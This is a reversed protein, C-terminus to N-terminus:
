VGPCLVPYPANGRVDPVVVCERSWQGWSLVNFVVLRPRAPNAGLNEVVGVGRVRRDAWTVDRPGIRWSASARESARAVVGLARESAAPHLITYPEPSVSAHGFILLGGLLVWLAILAGPAGTTHRPTPHDDM